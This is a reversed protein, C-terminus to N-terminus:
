LKRFSVSRVEKPRKHLFPGEGKGRIANSKVVAITFSDRLKSQADQESCIRPYRTKHAPCTQTDRSPGRAEWCPPSQMILWLGREEGRKRQGQVEAWIIHYGHFLSGKWSSTNAPTARPKWSTVTRNQLHDFPSCCMWTVPFVSVDQLQACEVRPQVSTPSTRPAAPCCPAPPPASRSLAEPACVRFSLVCLGSTLGEAPPKMWWGGGWFEDTLLGIHFWNRKASVHSM